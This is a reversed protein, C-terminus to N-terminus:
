DNNEGENVAWTSEPMINFNGISITTKVGDQIAELDYVYNAFNLNNTDEPLVTFHYTGDEDFVMDELKKQFAFGEDTFKNKVTFYLGDAIATIVEGEADLRQFKFQATDGRIMQLPEVQEKPCLM